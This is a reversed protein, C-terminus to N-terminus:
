TSRKQELNAIGDLIMCSIRVMACATCSFRNIASLVDDDIAAASPLNDFIMNGHYGDRIAQIFAEQEEKTMVQRMLFKCNEARLMFIEDHTVHPVLQEAAAGLLTQM